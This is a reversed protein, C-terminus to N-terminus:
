QTLSYVRTEDGVLGPPLFVVRDATSGDPRFALWGPYIVTEYGGDDARIVVTGNEIRDFRPGAASIFPQPNAPDFPTFEGELLNTTGRM